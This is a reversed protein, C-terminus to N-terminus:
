DGTEFRQFVDPPIIRRLASLIQNEDFGRRILHFALKQIDKPAAPLGQKQCHKEIYEILITEIDVENLVREIAQKIIDADVDRRLLTEKVRAPGWGVQRIHHLALNYAYEADNLLNLQELRALTKELLPDQEVPSLKKRLEGCSYARKALLAAAKKILPPNDKIGM